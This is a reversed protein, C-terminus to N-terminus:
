LSVRAPACCHSLLRQDERQAAMGRSSSTVEGERTQGPSCKFLCLLLYVIFDPMVVRGANGNAFNAFQQLPLARVMEVRLREEIPDEVTGMAKRLIAFFGSGFVGGHDAFEGITTRISFPRLPDPPPVSLGMADMQANTLAVYSRPPAAPALNPNTERKAGVVDIQSSLRIDLLSSGILIDYAGPEVYWDHSIIDFFAFARPLLTFSIQRKEGPELWVKEFERLEREPRFVSAVVDRVYVQVVEAATFAGTNAITMTLTLSEQQGIETAGLVLDAYAFTTYSLGHGFPFLVDIGHTVFHRYGVNLGERYVVQRPHAAFHAHSAHDSARVAFTEALKGCPCAHGYLLDVLARAGAQGGLYLELIAPCEQVWPMEVPAGNCLAVVMNRQAAAVASILENIQEPLRMHERDFGESEFAPPLGAVVVVVDAAAAVRVAESILASDPAASVPDFGQAYVVEGACAAADRMVELPTELRYANVKSSGSGQYRPQEAFGGILAVRANRAIPLVGAENKLLVASQVAARRAFADNAELLALPEQVAGVSKPAASGTLGQQLSRRAMAALTFQIIRVATTDLVAVNLMRSRVASAIRQDNYGGSAPMELDVGSILGTVRDVIAGWDTVILGEFGWESRLVRNNLWNHESCHVGNLRNYACMVTWPQARRVASEFAPLYIERLTREDVLTDVVLRDKEQQNCAFHKLSTGVGNQQVGNIFAVALEGSVFPDESFYEFNRGCLPHRKINIGPGLIAAVDQAACEAGLAQGVKYLLERDWSAGLASATPFCTARVSDSLGLHSAGCDKRLGHPGDAILVKSISLREIPELTWFGSGSCLSAKEKLTMRRVLMQAQEHYVSPRIAEATPSATNSPMVRMAVGTFAEAPAVAANRQGSPM